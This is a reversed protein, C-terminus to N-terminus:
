YVAVQSFIPFTNSGIATCGEIFFNVERGTLHAALLTAYVEKYAPAGGVAEPPLLVIVNDRLCVDPNLWAGTEKRVIVTKDTRVTLQSLLTRGSWDGAFARPVSMVVVAVVVATASGIRLRM